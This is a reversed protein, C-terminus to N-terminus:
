DAYKEVLRERTAPALKTISVSMTGSPLGFQKEAKRAIRNAAKKLPAVSRLYYGGDKPDNKM